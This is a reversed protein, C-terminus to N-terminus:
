SLVRDEDHGRKSAGVGLMVFQNPSELTLVVLELLLASLELLVEALRLLVFPQELLLVLIELGLDFGRRPDLRDDDGLGLGLLFARGMPM